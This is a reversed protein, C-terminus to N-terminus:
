TRTSSAWVAPSGTKTRCVAPAPPVVGPATRVSASVSVAVSIGPATIREVPAAPSSAITSILRGAQVGSRSGSESEILPGSVFRHVHGETLEELRVADAHVVRCRGRERPLELVDLRLGVVHEIGL